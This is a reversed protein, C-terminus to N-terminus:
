GELPRLLKQVEVGAGFQQYRGLLVKLGGVALLKAGADGSPIVIRDDNPVALKLLDGEGELPLLADDLLLDVLDLAADGLQFM